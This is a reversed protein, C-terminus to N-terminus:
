VTRGSFAVLRELPGAGAPIVTPDKFTDGDRLEPAIAHRVFAEVAEVLEDSPAWAQGTGRALDWGHVLGDFAVFRAFTDGTVDGFPSLITRDLAGPSKAAAVLETMTTRFEAAPVWGYVAPASVPQPMEGRFLPAFTAGGVIMHDIVDHVTFTACPTPEELQAYWIGDVLDILSPVITDLQEIPNM